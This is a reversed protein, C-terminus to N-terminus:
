QQAMEQKEEVIESNVFELKNSLMVSSSVWDEDVNM